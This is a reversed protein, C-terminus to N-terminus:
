NKRLFDLYDDLFIVELKARNLKEKLQIEQEQLKAKQKENKADLQLSKKVKNLESQIEKKRQGVLNIKLEQTKKLISPSSKAEGAQIIEDLVKVILESDVKHALIQKKQLILSNGQDLIIYSNFYVLDKIAKSSIELLQELYPLINKLILTNTIPSALSIHGMRWRRINSTSILVGCNECKRNKIQRSQDSRCACQYNQSPGFVQPCFLGGIEPEFTSGNLTKSNKIEGFSLKKNIKEDTLWSLKLSKIITM